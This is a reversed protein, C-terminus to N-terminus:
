WTKIDDATGPKGDKGSSYVAVIRGPLEVTKGAYHFRLVSGGGVHMNVVFPRGWNDYVGEMRVGDGGYYAGGKGYKGMGVSLFKIAKSNQGTSPDQETGTLISLLKEGDPGATQVQSGVKPLDGYEMDFNEIASKFNFCIALSARQKAKELSAGPLAFAGM